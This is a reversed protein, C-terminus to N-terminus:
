QWVPLSLPNFNFLYILSYFFILLLALALISIRNASRAKQPMAKRWGYYFIAGALVPSALCLLWIYLRENGIITDNAIQGALAQSKIRLMFIFAIIAGGVLIINYM